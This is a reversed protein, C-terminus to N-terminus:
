VQYLLQGRNKKGVQSLKERTWFPVYLILIDFGIAMSLCNGQM